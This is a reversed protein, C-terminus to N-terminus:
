GEHLGLGTGYSRYRSIRRVGDQVCKASKLKKDIQLSSKRDKALGGEKSKVPVSVNLM